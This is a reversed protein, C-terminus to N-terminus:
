LADIACRYISDITCKISVFTCSVDNSNEIDQFEFHNDRVFDLRMIKCFLSESIIQFFYRRIQSPTFLNEVYKKIMQPLVLKEKKTSEDRWYFACIVIDAETEEIKKHLVDLYNPEFFDDADLVSLYKGRAM